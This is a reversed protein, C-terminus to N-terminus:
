VPPSDLLSVLHGQIDLRNIEAQVENLYIPNAVLILDFSRGKLDEPSTIILGTSPLFTGQKHPNIDVLCTNSKLEPIANILSVAKSAAGWILLSHRAAAPYLLDGWHQQRQTILKSFRDIEKSNDIITTQKTQTRNVRAVIHLYHKDFIKSVDDVEFGSGRFLRSLSQESFYNCHEYYIDWYAVEEIIREFAPLQMIVVADDNLIIKNLELMFMKPQHIHELTMKCLYFDAQRYDFAYGSVKETKPPFFDRVFSLNENAELRNPDFTPDFGIGHGIGLEALKTLYEGKGCGIEVVTKGRMSHQKFIDNALHNHFQMFTASFGQTEEYDADYHMFSPNFAHNWVMSCKNCHYLAIDGVAASLSQEASKALRVSHIPVNSQQYILRESSADCVLCKAKM